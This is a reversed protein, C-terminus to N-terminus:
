QGSYPATFPDDRNVCHNPRFGSRFFTERARMALATASRALAPCAWSRSCGRDTAGCALHAGQGDMQRAIDVQRVGQQYLEVVLACEDATLRRHRLVVGHSEILVLVSSRAVGYREALQRGTAGARYASVLEVQQADTLRVLLKRPVAGPTEVRGSWSQRVVTLTRKTRKLHFALKTRPRLRRFPGQRRIANFVDSAAARPV